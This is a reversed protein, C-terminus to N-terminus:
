HIQIRKSRKMYNLRIIDLGFMLDTLRTRVRGSYM